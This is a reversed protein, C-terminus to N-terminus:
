PTFCMKLEEKAFDVPSGEGEIRIWRVFCHSALAHLLTEAMRVSVNNGSPLLWVKSSPRILWTLLKTQESSCESGVLAVVHPFGCQHLWWVSSFDEVVILDDCPTKIRHGNYLFASKRFDFIQGNRERRTPFRYLPNTESIAHQDVIKGAYGILSGEIDHLPIAIRGAFLGRPCFGIGFHQLTEITLDRNAFYEHGRDLGKLEFDIPANVLVPKDVPITSQGSDTAPPVGPSPIVPNAKTKTSAGKPFFREQLSVAVKRLADGNKVDVKEMLAAFELVNGKAGCGFCQFIGRKLNASFAPASNSGTHGPLPCRGHHQEGKKHVV